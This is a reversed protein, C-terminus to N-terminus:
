CWSSRSSARSSGPSSSRVSASCTASSARCGASRTKAAINRLRDELRVPEPKDERPALMFGGGSRPIVEVGTPQLQVAMRGDPLPTIVFATGPPLPVDAVVPAAGRERRRRRAAVPLPEELWAALQPVYEDNIRQYM